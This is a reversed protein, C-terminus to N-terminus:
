DSGKYFYEWMESKLLLEFQKMAENNLRSKRWNMSVLSGAAEPKNIMSAM